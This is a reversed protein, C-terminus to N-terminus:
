GEFKIVLTDLHRLLPHQAEERVRRVTFTEEIIEEPEIIWITSLDVGHEAKLKSYREEFKKGYILAKVPTGKIQFSTKDPGLVNIAVQKNFWISFVLNKNTQSSEIIEDYELNGGSNLRISDKFTVHPRGNKDVSALVKVAGTDELLVKVTEDLKIAM